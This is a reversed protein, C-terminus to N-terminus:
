DMEGLSEGLVVRVEIEVIEPKRVEDRFEVKGTVASRALRIVGEVECFTDPSCVSLRNLLLPGM